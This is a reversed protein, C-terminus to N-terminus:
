PVNEFINPIVWSAFICIFGTGGMGPDRHGSLLFSRVQWDVATM